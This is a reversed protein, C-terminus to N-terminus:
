VICRSIPTPACFCTVCKRKMQLTKRQTFITNKFCFPRRSLTGSARVHVLLPRLMSHSGIRICHRPINSYHSISPRGVCCRRFHHVCTTTEGRNRCASRSFFLFKCMQHVRRYLYCQCHAYRHLSILHFDHVLLRSPSVSQVIHPTLRSRLVSNRLSANRCPHHSSFVTGSARMRAKRMCM